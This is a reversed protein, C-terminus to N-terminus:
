KLSDAGVRMESPTSPFKAFKLFTNKLTEANM